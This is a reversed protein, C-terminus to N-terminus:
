VIRNRLTPNKKISANRSITVLIQNKVIAANIRIPYPKNNKFKFDWEPYVITADQGKPIYSLEISHVHREVVPIHADRVANFLTSSVQCVGGGYGKTFLGNNIIISEKWGWEPKNSDGIIKNFSFVENSQVVINNIKSAALQINYRGNFDKTSLDTYFQSLQPSIFLLFALGFAKLLLLRWSCKGKSNGLIFKQYKNFSM